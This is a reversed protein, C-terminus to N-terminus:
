NNTQMATPNEDTEAVGRSLADATVNQVGPVHIWESTYSAIVLLEGTERSIERGGANKAANVLAQHDTNIVLHRGKITTRFHRVGLYVALLERGFTSFKRQQKDLRRSFFELPTINGECDQQHLVAPVWQMTVLM